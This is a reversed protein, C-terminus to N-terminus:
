LKGEKESAPTSLLAELEERLGDILELTGTPWKRLDKEQWTKAREILRKAKLKQTVDSQCANDGDLELTDDCDRKEQPAADPQRAAACLTDHGVDWPQACVACIRVPGGEPMREGKQLAVRRQVSKSKMEM